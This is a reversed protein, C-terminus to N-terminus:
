GKLKKLQEIIQNIQKVIAAKQSKLATMHRVSVFGQDNTIHFDVNVLAVKEKALSVQLIAALYQHQAQEAGGTKMAAAYAM